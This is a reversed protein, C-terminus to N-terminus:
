SPSRGPGATLLITQVGRATAGASAAFLYGGGIGPLGVHYIAFLRNGGATTGDRIKTVAVPPPLREVVQRFKTMAAPPNAIATVVECQIDGRRTTVVVPLTKGDHVPQWLREQQAVPAGPNPKESFGAARLWTQRGEDNDPHMM